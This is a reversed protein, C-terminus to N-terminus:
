RCINAAIDTDAFRERADGAESDDVVQRGAVVQLTVGLALPLRRKSIVPDALLAEVPLRGIPGHIQGRSSM